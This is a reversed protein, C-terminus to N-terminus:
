SKNCWICIVRIAKHSDKLQQLFTEDELQTTEHLTGTSEETNSENETSTEKVTYESHVQHQLTPAPSVENTLISQLIREHETLNLNEPM